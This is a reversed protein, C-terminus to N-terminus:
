KKTTGRKIDHNQNFYHKKINKFFRIDSQQNTKKGGCVIIKGSNKDHFLYVRLNRTKIEYEKHQDNRPTIDKFKEKPLTKCDAVDDLRTQITRLETAYTGELKIEEEFEDFSCANNVKLKYIKVKGQIEKIEVLAFSYM